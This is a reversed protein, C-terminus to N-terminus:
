IVSFFKVERGALVGLTLDVLGVGERKYAHIGNPWDAVIAAHSFCRGFKYVAIDGPKPEAVEVAYKFIGELYREESRHMAWDAPYYGPDFDAIVGCASFVAILLQACDVGGKEGKVRGRHHYPTRLWDRAEMVIAQRLQDNDRQM